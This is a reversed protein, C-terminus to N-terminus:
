KENTHVLDLTDNHKDNRGVMNMQQQMEYNKKM